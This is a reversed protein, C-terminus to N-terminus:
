LLRQAVLPEPYRQVLLPPLLPRESLVDPVAEAPTYTYTGPAQTHRCTQTHQVEVGLGRHLPRATVSAHMHTRAYTRIRTRTHTHKTYVPEDAHVPELADGEVNDGLLERLALDTRSV